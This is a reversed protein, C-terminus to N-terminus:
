VPLRVLQHMCFRRSKDTVSWHHRAGGGRVLELKLDLTLLREFGRALVMAASYGLAMSRCCVEEGCGSGKQGARM